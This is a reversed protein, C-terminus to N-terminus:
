ELVGPESEEEVSVSRGAAVEVPITLVRVPGWEEKSVTCLTEAARPTQKM